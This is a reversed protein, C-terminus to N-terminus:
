GFILESCPHFYLFYLFKAALAIQVIGSSDGVSSKLKTTVQDQLGNLVDWSKVLYSLPLLTHMTLMLNHTQNGSLGVKQISNFFRLEFHINHIDAFEM